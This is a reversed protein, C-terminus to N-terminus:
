RTPLNHVRRVIREDVQYGVAQWFNMARPQDKEVLATIRKAGQQTLRKEGEVLLSRAGGQPHHDPHFAFRFINGRWGDFSGIISGIVHGGVEAVLVHAPSDAIARRLDDVTETVSPAAAPQRWLELVRGIDDLRCSRISVNETM